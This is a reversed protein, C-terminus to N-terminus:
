TYKVIDTMKTQIHKHKHKKKWKANTNSFQLFIFLVDAIAINKENKM